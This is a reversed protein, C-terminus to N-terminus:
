KTENNNEIYECNYNVREEYSLYVTGQDITTVVIVIPCSGGRELIGCNAAQKYEVDNELSKVLFSRKEDYKHECEFYNNPLNSNACASSVIIMLFFAIYKTIM